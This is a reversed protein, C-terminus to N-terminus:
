RRRTIPHSEIVEVTLTMQNNETDISPIGVIRYTTTTGLIESDAEIISGHTLSLDIEPIMISDANRSLQEFKGQLLQQMVNLATASTYANNFHEVAVTEGGIPEEVKTPIESFDAFTFQVSIEKQELGEGNIRNTKTTAIIVQPLITQVPNKKDIHSDLTLTKIPDYTADASISFNCSIKMSLADGDRFFRYGFQLGFPMAIKSLIDKFTQVGTFGYNVIAHDKVAEANPDYDPDGLEVVESDFVEYGFDNLEDSIYVLIDDLTGSEIKRSVGSITVQGIENLGLGAVTLTEGEDSSSILNNIHDSSLRWTFGDLPESLVRLNEYASRYTSSDTLTTEDAAGFSGICDRIHNLGSTYTIVIHWDDGDRNHRYDVFTKTYTTPVSAGITHIYGETINSDSVDYSGSFSGQTNGQGNLSFNLNTITIEDVNSFSPQTPTSFMIYVDDDQVFMRDIKLTDDATSDTYEIKLFARNDSFSTLSFDSTTQIAANTFIESTAITTAVGDSNFLSEQTFASSPVKITASTRDFKYSKIDSDLSNVVTGSTLDSLYQNEVVTDFAHAATENITLTNSTAPITFTTNGSQSEVVETERPLAGTYSTTFATITSSSVSASQDTSITGGGSGATGGVRQLGMIQNKVVGSFKNTSGSQWLLLDNVIYDEEITRRQLRSVATQYDGSENYSINISTLDDTIGVVQDPTQPTVNETDVDSWSGIRPDSSARSIVPFVLPDDGSDTEIDVVTPNSVAYPVGKNSVTIGADHKAGFENHLTTSSSVETAIAEVNNFTGITFISPTSEGLYDTVTRGSFFKYDVPNLPQIKFTVSPIGKNVSSTLVKSQGLFVEAEGSLPFFGVETNYLKARNIPWTGNAENFIADPDYPSDIISFQSGSFDFFFGGTYSIVPRKLLNYRMTRGSIPFVELDESHVFTYETGEINIKVYPITNSRVKRM